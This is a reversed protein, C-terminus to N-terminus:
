LLWLGQRVLAAAREPKSKWARRLQPHDAGLAKERISLSREFLPEAEAYQARIYLYYGAQNLMRAAEVFIFEFEDIM